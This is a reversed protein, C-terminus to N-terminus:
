GDLGRQFTGPSKASDPPAPLAEVIRIEQAVLDLLGILIGGTENPLDSERLSQLTEELKSDWRMTFSGTTSQRADSPQVKLCQTAGTERDNKWIRIRAEPNSSFRLIQSSLLAAHLNVDAGSMVMSHDRCSGGTRIRGGPLQSFDALDKNQILARYFQAELESLRVDRALSEGLLVSYDANPSLFVSCARSGTESRSYALSFEVGATADIILEKGEFEVLGEALNSETVRQVIPAASGEIVDNAMAAMIESKPVGVQSGFAQHRVLNHPKIHDHDIFTWDAFGGRILNMSISSGLSGLGVIVGRRLRDYHGSHSQATEATLRHHVEIPAVRISKWEDALLKNGKRMSNLVLTNEFNDIFGMILGVSIFDQGIFFAKRRVEEARESSDRAIPIEVLLVFARQHPAHSFTHGEFKSRLFADISVRLDVGREGLWESLDGLDRPPLELMPNPVLATQIVLLDAPPAAPHKEVTEAFYVFRGDGTQRSHAIALRNRAANTGWSAPLILEAPALFFLEELPQDESHLERRAARELWYLIDNLYNTATWRCRALEWSEETLCISRPGGDLNENQHPTVPFGKRLIRVDPRQWKDHPFVLALRERYKIGLDNKSPVGDSLADVILVDSPSKEAALSRIAVFEFDKRKQLAQYVRRSLDTRLVNDPAGAIPAGFDLFTM